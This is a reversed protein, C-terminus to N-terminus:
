SKHANADVERGREREGEKERERKRWKSTVNKEVINISVQPFGQKWGVRASMRVRVTTFARVCTHTHTRTVM